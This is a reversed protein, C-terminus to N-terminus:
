WVELRARVFDPYDVSDTGHPGCDHVEHGARELREKLAQKLRFGRHDGGLFIPAGM